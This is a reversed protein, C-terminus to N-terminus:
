PCANVAARARELLPGYCRDPNLHEAAIARARTSLQQRSNADTLLKLTAEAFTEPTDAVALAPRFFELGDLGVSTTVCARGFSLGEVLKIKVGSGQRLPVIVVRASGYFDDLSPVNGCLEVGRSVLSASITPCVQGAVRCKADACSTLVRPWVHALFWEIAERNAENSSGVFACIPASSASASARPTFSMPATVIDHGPIDKAFCAAEQDQIAIITDATALWAQEQEFEADRRFQAEFRGDGQLYCRRFRYDHTVVWIQGQFSLERLGRLMWPYNAIIVDPKFTRVQAALFNIEARTCPRNWAWPNSAPGQASSAPTRKEKPRWVPSLLRKARHLTRAKLPLLLADANYYHRGIRRCGIPHVDLRGKTSPAVATRFSTEIESPVQSWTVRLQCGHSRLYSLLAHAYSGAGNSGETPLIRTFFLIRPARTSKLAQSARKLVRHGDAKWTRAQHWATSRLTQCEFRARAARRHLDYINTHELAPNFYCAATSVNSIGHVLHTCRSLLLCDCLVDVGVQRGGGGNGHHLASGVECRRAEFIILRSGYREQFASLVDHQDTALFIRASRGAARDIAAFYADLPQRALRFYALEGDHENGRVHVGVVPAGNFHKQAFTEVRERIEARPQMRRAILRGFHVRNGEDIRGPSLLMAPNRATMWRNGALLQEMPETEPSPLTEPLPEFFTNWSNADRRDTEDRYLCDPGWHIALRLGRKEALAMYAIAILSLSFFGTRRERIVLERTASPIVLLAQLDELTTRLVRHAPTDPKERRLSIALQEGTARLQREIAEWSGTFDVGQFNHLNM